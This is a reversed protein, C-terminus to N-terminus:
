FLVINVLERLHLRTAPINFHISHPRHIKLQQLKCGREKREKLMTYLEEADLHTVLIPHARLTIKRLRPVPVTGDSLIRLAATDGCEIKLKELNKANRLTRDLVAQTVLPYLGKFALTRVHPYAANSFAELFELWPSTNQAIRGDDCLTLTFRWFQPWIGNEATACGHFTLVPGVDIDPCFNVTAKMLQDAEMNGPLAAAPGFKSFVSHFPMPPIRDNWSFAVNLVCKALGPPFTLSRVVWLVDWSESQSLALDTLRPLNVTKETVQPDIHIDVFRLSELRPFNELVTLINHTTAPSQLPTFSINLNTLTPPLSCMMEWDIYVGDLILSRLPASTLRSIVSSIDAGRNFPMGVLANIYLTELQPLPPVNTVIQMQSDILSEPMELQLTRIRHAENLIRRLFEGAQEDRSWDEGYTSDEDLGHAVIVDLPAQRSRSLALDLLRPRSFIDDDLYRWLLPNALAISRWRHCIQTPVLWWWRSYDFKARSNYCTMFVAEAERYLLFIRVVLEDPLSLAPLRSNITRSLAALRM